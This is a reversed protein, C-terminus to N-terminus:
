HSLRVKWVAFTALLLIAALAILRSPLIIFPKDFFFLRISHITGALMGGSFILVVGGTLLFAYTLTWFRQM